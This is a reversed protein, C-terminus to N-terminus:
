CGVHETQEVDTSSLEPTEEFIPLDITFMAGQGPGDSHATLTGGHMEVLTKSIALGLGLGGHRRTVDRGGQEFADFIRPLLESDVGAGTDRVRVVVRGGERDFSEVHVEGSAPTFKRANKVLNWVVQSLRAEDAEVTTRTAQLNVHPVPGGESQELCTELAYKVVAHLDVPVKHIEIKGRVIRTLDLLDDILRAEFRINRAVTKMDERIDEPVSPDSLLGDAIFLVPTLPTRLEHSLAALFRDKAANAREAESRALNVRDVLEELEYERKALKRMTAHLESIDVAHIIVGNIKGTAADLRPRYTVRLRHPTSDLAPEDHVFVVEEGDIARRLLPTIRETITSGLVESIHKGLIDDAHRGFYQAYFENVFRYRLECDVEALFAPLRDTLLRLQEEGTRARREAERRVADLQNLGHFARQVLGLAFCVLGNQIIFLAIRLQEPGHSLGSFTFRPPVFYYLATFVSLVTALLGPGPGGLLAAATVGISFIVMPSNDGLVSDLSWRLWTCLATFGVALAYAGWRPVRTGWLLIAMASLVPKM